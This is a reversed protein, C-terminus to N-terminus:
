PTGSVRVMASGLVHDDHDVGPATHGYRNLFIDNDRGLNRITRFRVSLDNFLVNQGLQGHNPSNGDVAQGHECHPPHDAALPVYSSGTAQVPRLREHEFHGMHLAYDNHLLCSPTTSSNSVLRALETVGPAKAPLPNRGDGPCDWTPMSDLIGGESLISAIAGNYGVASDPRVHPYEQHLTAYRYLGMGIQRLNDTCGALRATAQSRHLAPMLTLVGAVFIGAAVAVDAWRFPSRMPAYEHLRRRQRHAEVQMITRRALGVPPEPEPGDDLLRALNERLRQTRAALEPDSAANQDILHCGRSDILGLAHDLLDDPNMTDSM